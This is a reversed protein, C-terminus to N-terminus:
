SASVPKELTLLLLPQRPQGLQEGAPFPESEGTQYYGRRAYWDLLDPREALVTMRIRICRLQRAQLDAHLLLRRGVGLDQAEPSVALLSVYLADGLPRTLCICGVLGRSPEHCCWLRTFPTRILIRLAAENIRPGNFLHAETTWGRRSGEGRYARNILVTLGPIDAPTAPRIILLDAM